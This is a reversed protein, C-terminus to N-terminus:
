TKLGDSKLIGYLEIDEFKEWKWTHQRRCGEYSMGIKQMVRGSAPNHSFHTAQIRHLGIVEFGYEVVARAAETCYGKGWYPKGIWYGLEANNNEADIGLGIAGCLEGSERLAIAFNVGTGEEFAAPHTKIWEEAMGDEYPHPIMLTTAAIEHAGALRQVDPADAFTFPRLILRQTQITPQEARSLKEDKHQENLAIFNPM